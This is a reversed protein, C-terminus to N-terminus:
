REIIRSAIYNFLDSLRLIGVVQKGRTVIVSLSQWMIIKHMAESLSANEDINEAVPHMVNKVTIQGASQLIEDMRGKWLNFDDMMSTIVETSIGAQSLTKINGLSKYKPELAKLFALHGIKGVVKEDKNIVLVARHPQRKEPLNRQSKELAIFADLLTSNENIVAYEEIPVMLDKVKKTEM